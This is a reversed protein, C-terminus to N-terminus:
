GPRRAHVTEPMPQEVCGPSFRRLRERGWHRCITRGDVRASTARQAGEQCAPRGTSMQLRTSTSTRELYTRLISPRMCFLTM